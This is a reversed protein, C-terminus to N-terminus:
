HMCLLEEVDFAQTLVGDCGTLETRRDTGRRILADSDLVNGLLDLVPLTSWEPLRADPLDLLGTVPMSPDDGTPLSPLPMLPVTFLKKKRIYAEVPMDKVHSGTELHNTSLSAFDPYNPYLMLYGRLYVLEIFYRKWSHRWRNSRVDPVVHESLPFM